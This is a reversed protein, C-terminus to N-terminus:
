SVIFSLISGRVPGRGSLVDLARSPTPWCISFATAAEEPGKRCKEVLM